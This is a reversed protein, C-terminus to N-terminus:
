FTPTPEGLSQESTTILSLTRPPPLISFSLGFHQFLFVSHRHRFLFLLRSLSRPRPVLIFILISYTPTGIPSNEIVPQTNLVEVRFFLGFGGHDPRFSLVFLLTFPSVWPLGHSSAACSPTTFGAVSHARPPPPPPPPPASLFQSLTLPFM